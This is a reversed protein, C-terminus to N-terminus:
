QSEVWIHVVYYVTSPKVKNEDYIHKIEYIRKRWKNTKINQSEFAMTIVTVHM